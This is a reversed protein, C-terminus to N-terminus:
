GPELPGVVELCNWRVLKRQRQPQFSVPHTLQERRHRLLLEIGLAIDYLIFSPPRDVILRVAGHQLFHLLQYERRQM